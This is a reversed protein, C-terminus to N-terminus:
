ITPNDDYFSLQEEVKGSELYGVDAEAIKKNEEISM